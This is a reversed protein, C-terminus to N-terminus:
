TGLGQSSHFWPVCRQASGAPRYGSHGTLTAVLRHSAPALLPGEEGAKRRPQGPCVEPRRPGHWGEEGIRLVRIIQWSLMRAQERPMKKM